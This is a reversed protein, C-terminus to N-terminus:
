QCMLCWQRTTNSNCASVSGAAIGPLSQAIAFMKQAATYQVLFRSQLDKVITSDETPPTNQGRDQAAEAKLDNAIKSCASLIAQLETSPPDQSALKPFTTAAHDLRQAVYIMTKTASKGNHGVIQHWDINNPSQGIIENLIALDIMSGKIFSYATDTGFPLVTDKLPPVRATLAQNLASLSATM